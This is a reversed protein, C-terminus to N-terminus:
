PTPSGSASKSPKPAAYPTPEGEWTIPDFEEFPRFSVGVLKGQDPVLMVLCADVSAGAGFKQPLTKASCPKFPEKFAAAEVLNGEGDLGWLPVDYGGLDTEGENKVTVRVFYPARSQAAEDLKWGSFTQKYSTSELKKLTISIEGDVGSKPSWEVTATEGVNRDAGPETTAGSTPEADATGSASGSASASASPSASGEPASSRPATGSCGTLSIALVAGTVSATVLSGARLM